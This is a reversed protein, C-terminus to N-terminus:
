SQTWMVNGKHFSAGRQGSLRRGLPSGELKGERRSFFIALAWKSKSFESESFLWFGTYKTSSKTLRWRCEGEVEKWFQRPQIQRVQSLGCGSVPGGLPVFCWGEWWVEPCCPLAMMVAESCLGCEEEALRAGKRKKKPLQDWSSVRICKRCMRPDTEEPAWCADIGSSISHTSCLIFFDLLAPSLM